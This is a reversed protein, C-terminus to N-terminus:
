SAFCPPFNEHNWPHPCDKWWNRVLHQEVPYTDVLAKRVLSQLLHFRLLPNLMWQFISLLSLCHLYVLEVFPLLVASSSFSRVFSSLLISLHTPLCRSLASPNCLFRDMTHLQTSRVMFCSLLVIRLLTLGKFLLFLLKGCSPM